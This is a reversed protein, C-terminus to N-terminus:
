GIFFLVANDFLLNLWTASYFIVTSNTLLHGWTKRMRRLVQLYRIAALTYSFLIKRLNAFLSIRLEVDTARISHLLFLLPLSTDHIVHTHTQFYDRLHARGFRYQTESRSIRKARCLSLEFAFTVYLVISTKWELIFTHSCLTGVGLRGRSFRCSLVHFFFHM